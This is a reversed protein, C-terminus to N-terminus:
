KQFLLILAITFISVAAVCVMIMGIRKLVRIRQVNGDAQEWRHHRRTALCSMIMGIRKLVRIRQVNGDAQEWRHHRRTALCSQDCGPVSCTRGICLYFQARSWALCRALPRFGGVAHHGSGGQGGHGSGGTMLLYQDLQIDDQGGHGSGGTMLLYQDLQIDDEFNDFVDEEDTLSLDFAGSTLPQLNISVAGAVGPLSAALRIDMPLKGTRTGASPEKAAPLPGVNQQICELLADVDQALLTREDLSAADGMSTPPGQLQRRIFMYNDVLASGLPRLAALRELVPGATHTASRCAKWVPPSDQGDRFATAMALFVDEIQLM